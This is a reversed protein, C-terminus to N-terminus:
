YLIRFRGGSDTVSSSVQNTDHNRIEITAGPVVYGTTDRVVGAVSASAVTQARVAAPVASLCVIALWMPPSWLKSRMFTAGGASGPSGGVCQRACCPDSEIRAAGSYCGLARRPSCSRAQIASREDM